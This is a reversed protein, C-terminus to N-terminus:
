KRIGSKRTALGKWIAELPISSSETWYESSGECPLTVNGGASKDVMKWFFKSLHTAEESSSVGGKELISVALSDDLLSAFHLAVIAEEDYAYEIM